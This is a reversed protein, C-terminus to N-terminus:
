RRLLSWVSCGISSSYSLGTIHMCWFMSGWLTYYFIYTIRKDARVLACSLARFLPGDNNMHKRHTHWALAPYLPSSLPQSVRGRLRASRLTNDNAKRLLSVSVFISTCLFCAFCSIFLLGSGGSVCPSCYYFFFLSILGLCVWVCDVFCVVVVFFRFLVM